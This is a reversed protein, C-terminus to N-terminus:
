TRVSQAGSQRRKSPRFFGSVKLKRPREWAHPTFRPPLNITRRVVMPLPQGGFKMFHLRFEPLTHVLGYGLLPTPQSRNDSTIERIVGNRSVPFRQPGKSGLACPEPVSSQATATM